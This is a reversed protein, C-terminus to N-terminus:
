KKSLFINKLMSQATKFKSNFERLSKTKILQNFIYTPNFYHKRYIRKVSKILEKKPLNPYSILSDSGPDIPIYEKDETWGNKIAMERFETGPFPTCVTAHIVDANLKEAEQITKKITEKTELPSCGLLVNVEPQINYKKLNNACTYIDEVDLDKRVYDLIKQDFSEIGLDIFKVNSLAMEKVLEEDKLMDCRALLALELNLSRIGRLIQIIREKGWVFQDDIIFVSNYGQKKILKFEDIINKPSRMGVPPKTKFHKKYDIERAFSLSNPICFYCRFACGRSTLITTSPFNKFKPNSYGLPKKILTRDPFPLKDLNKIYERSPNDIKKKDFYTIGKIKKFNPKKKALEKCLELITEEPEGRVVFRNKQTCYKEPSYTSDTGLFIIPKDKFKEQIIDATKLDIDRSLFVSYFVYVDKEQKLVEDLSKKEVVCDTFEVDFGKSKLYSASYLIFINHQLFFSYSCGFLRDPNRKENAPPILFQIKM